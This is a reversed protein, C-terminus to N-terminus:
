QNPAAARLSQVDGSHVIAITGDGRRVRLAGDPELGDTIGTLTDNEMAVRVHKGSFYTSRKQWAKLVM